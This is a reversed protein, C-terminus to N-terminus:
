TEFAFLIAFYAWIFRALWSGVTFYSPSYAKILTQPATKNLM